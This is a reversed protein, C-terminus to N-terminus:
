FVKLLENEFYPLTSYGYKRQFERHHLIRIGKKHMVYDNIYKKVEKIIFAINEDLEKKQNEEVIKIDELYEDNTVVILKSYDLGPTSNNLIISKFRFCNNHKIYTRFPLGIKLNGNISIILIAYPREDNQLIEPYLEHTYAAHFQKSLKFIDAM